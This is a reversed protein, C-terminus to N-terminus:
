AVAPVDWVSTTQWCRPCDRQFSREHWGVEHEMQWSRCEAIVIRQEVPLRPARGRLRFLVILWVVVALVLAVLLILVTM